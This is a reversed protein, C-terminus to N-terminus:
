VSMWWMDMSTRRLHNTVDMVSWARFVTLIFWLHMRRGGVNRCAHESRCSALSFAEGGSVGNQFTGDSLAGKGTRCKADQEVPFDQSEVCHAAEGIVGSRGGYSRHGDVIQGADGLDEGGGRGGHQEILTPEEVEIQEDAIQQGRESNASLNPRYACGSRRRM